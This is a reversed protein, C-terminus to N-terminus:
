RDGQVTFLRTSNEASIIGTALATPGCALQTLALPLTTGITWSQIQKLTTPTTQAMAITEFSLRALLDSPNEFLFAPTEDPIFDEPLELMIKGVSVSTRVTFMLRTAKPSQAPLSASLPLPTLSTGLEHSLASLLRHLVPELLTQEISSYPQDPKKEISLGNVGGLMGDILLYATTWDFAILGTQKETKFPCVLPLSGLVPPNQTRTIAVIKHNQTSLHALWAPCIRDLVSTPKQSLAEAGQNLLVQIASPHTPLDIDMPGLLAAIEEPSLISASSAFDDTYTVGLDM